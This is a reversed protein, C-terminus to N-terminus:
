KLEMFSEDSSLARQDWSSGQSTRGGRRPSVALLPDVEVIIEKRSLHVYGKFLGLVGGGGSGEM